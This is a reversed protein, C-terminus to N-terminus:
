VNLPSAAPMVTNSGRNRIETAPTSATVERTSSDQTRVFFELMHSVNTYGREKLGQEVKQLLATLEAATEQDLSIIEHTDKNVIHYLAEPRDTLHYLSTGNHLFSRRVLGVEEFASLCRYVTVLDCSHRSLQDFIRDISVPEEHQTLVNIIAIRPQTIRLGSERLRQCAAELRKEPSTTASNGSVNALPHNTQTSAIM